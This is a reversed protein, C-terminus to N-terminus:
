RQEQKCFLYNGTIWFSQFKIKSHTSSVIDSSKNIFNKFTVLSLVKLSGDFLSFTKSMEDTKLNGAYFM